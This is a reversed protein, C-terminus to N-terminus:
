EIILFNPLVTPLSFISFFVGTRSANVLPFRPCFYLSTLMLLGFKVFSGLKVSVPTDSLVSESVLDVVAPSMDFFTVTSCATDPPPTKAGSSVSAENLTVISLRNKDIGPTPPGSETLASLIAVYMIGASGMVFVDFKPAKVM